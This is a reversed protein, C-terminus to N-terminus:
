SGLELVSSGVFLCIFYTILVAPLAIHAPVFNCSCLCLVVLAHGWVHVASACVYREFTACVAGCSCPLEPITAPPAVTPWRNCTPMLPPSM